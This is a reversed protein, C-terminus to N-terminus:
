QEAQLVGRTRSQLDFRERMERYSAVRNRRFSRRINALKLTGHRKKYTGHTQGSRTCGCTSQIMQRAQEIAAADPCKTNVCAGFAPPVTARFLAALVAAVIFSRM